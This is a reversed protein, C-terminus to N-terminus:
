NSAVYGPNGNITASGSISIPRVLTDLIPCQAEVADVLQKLEEDSAPSEIISEFSIDQFGAPIGKDAGMGFLGHLDLNGSLKIKVSTLEIDMASALAAYMIGQCTGLATLVLDGPSQASDAGGFAAPEDVPVPPLSRVTSTCHVDGDWVVDAKYRLRASKPNDTIATALNNIAEKVTAQSM